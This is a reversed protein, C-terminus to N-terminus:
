VWFEFSEEETCSFWKSIRKILVDFCQFGKLFVKQSFFKRRKNELIFFVKNLGQLLLLITGNGGENFSICCKSWSMLGYQVKASVKNLVQFLKEHRLHEKTRMSFLLFWFLLSCLQISLNVDYLMLQMLLWLWYILLLM